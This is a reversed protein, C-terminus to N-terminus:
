ISIRRRQVWEAGGNIPGGQKGAHDSEQQKALQVRGKMMNVLKQV